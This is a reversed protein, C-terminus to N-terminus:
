LVKTYIQVYFICGRRLNRVIETDHRCIHKKEKWSGLCGIVWQRLHLVGTHLAYVGGTPVPVLGCMVGWWGASVTDDTYM